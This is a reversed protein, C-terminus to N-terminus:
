MKRLPVRDFVTWYTEPEQPIDLNMVPVFNINLEIWNLKKIARGVPNVYPIALLLFLKFLVHVYGGNYM